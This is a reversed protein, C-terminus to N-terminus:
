VLALGIAVLVLAGVAMALAYHHVRGTQALKLVESLSVTGSGITHVTGDVVKSDVVAMRSAVGLIPYRVIWEYVRNM